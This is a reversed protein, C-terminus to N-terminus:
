PHREQAPSREMFLYLLLMVVCGLCPVVLGTKLSGLQTSVFGVMWPLIAGGLGALAFMVGSVRPAAAGFREPLLSINIPFVPALGLGTIVVSILLFTLTHAMLLIAVGLTALCLGGTATEKEDFFRLVRTALARGALLAAWFLSPAWAWLTGSNSQIRQAETAIWGGVGNESGVYLFFLAGLVFVFPNKWVSNGTRSEDERAAAGPLVVAASLFRTAILILACAIGYLFFRTRQAVVLSAVAFPCLAAGLGWSFNLWNLAASRRTPNLEATLLNAAPIALGLGIGYGFVSALGLTWSASALIAAGAAMAALGSVLATRYGYRHVALGSLAVGLISGVFQATFLYGAQADSLAWRASLVPLMPGLLTTIVGTLVFAIHVLPITAASSALSASSANAKVM